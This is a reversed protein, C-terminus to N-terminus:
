FNYLICKEFIFIQGGKPAGFVFIAFKSGFIMLIDLIWTGIISFTNMEFSLYERSNYTYTEQILIDSKTTPNNFNLFNHWVPLLMYFSFTNYVGWIKGDPKHGRHVCVM